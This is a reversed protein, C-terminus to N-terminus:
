FLEPLELSEDVALYNRILTPVSNGVINAITQLDAKGSRCLHTIFTHRVDYFTLYEKVLGENVLAKIIPSWIRRSFNHNDIYGGNFSPFVLDNHLKPIQNLFNNLQENVPFLRCNVGNKTGIILEKGSYRKDFKLWIKDSNKIIDSWQFAIAESPRCGTFFRFAVFYYYYHHDNTKAKESLYKNNQFANLIYEVEEKTFAKISKKQTKELTKKIEPLPNDLNHKKRIKTFNIASSLDTLLRNLTSPSYKETLYDILKDIEYLTVNCVSLVKDITRWKDQKSVNAIDPKHKKYYEWIEKLTLEKKNPNIPIIKKQTTLRYKQKSEDYRDYVYIDHHIETAKAIAIKQNDQDFYNLPYNIAERKGKYTFRLRISGNNNEISVKLGDPKYRQDSNM